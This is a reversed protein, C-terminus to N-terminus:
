ETERAESEGSEREVKVRERGMRVRERESVRKGWEREGERAATEDEREQGVRVRERAWSESERRVRGVRAGSEREREQGM